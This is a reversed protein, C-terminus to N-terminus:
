VVAGVSHATSLCWRAVLADWLVGLVALCRDCGPVPVLHAHMISGFQHQRISVVFRSGVTATANFSGGILGSVGGRGRCCLM